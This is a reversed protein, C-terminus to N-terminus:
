RKNLCLLFRIVNIAALGILLYISRALIESFGFLFHVLNFNTLGIIGWNLAGIIVLVFSIKDLMSVKCM